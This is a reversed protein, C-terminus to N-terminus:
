SSFESFTPSDSYSLIQEENPYPGERRARAEVGESISSIAPENRDSPQDFDRRPKRQSRERQCMALSMPPSATDASLEPLEQVTSLKCEEEDDDDDGGNAGIGIGIGIGGGSRSGSRSRSGSGGAGGGGGDANGNVYVEAEAEHM